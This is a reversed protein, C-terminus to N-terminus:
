ILAVFLIPFSSLIQEVQDWGDMSALAEILEGRREEEVRRM